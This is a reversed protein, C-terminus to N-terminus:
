CCASCSLHFRCGHRHLHRPARDHARGRDAGALDPIARVREPRQLDGHARGYQAFHEEAGPFAHFYGCIGAIAVIVATLVYASRMAALRPMTNEAFLCAFLLAAVALYISTAAYQVTKEQGPVNLLSLLGGINFLLLLM